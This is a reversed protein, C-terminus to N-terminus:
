DKSALTSYILILDRKPRRSIALLSFVRLDIPLRTASFPCTNM